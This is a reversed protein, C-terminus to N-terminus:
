KTERRAHREDNLYRVPAIHTTAAGVVGQKTMNM